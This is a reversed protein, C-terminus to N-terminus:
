KTFNSKSVKFVFYKNLFKQMPHIIITDIIVAIIFTILFCLCFRLIYREGWSQILKTKSYLVRLVAYHLIYITFSYKAVFSILKNLLDHKIVIAKIIIYMGLSFMIYMPAVGWIEVSHNPFFYKQIVTGLGCLAAICCLIKKQNKIMRFEYYGLFFCITWSSLLWGSYQFNVGLDQVLYIDLINWVLGVILLINIENDSLAQLMKALFPASVIMGILPYMFWLHTSNNTDFLRIMYGKFISLPEEWNIEAEYLYLILSLIIYPLIISVFKKKYYIIYDRKDKLIVNLNFRGSLMFFMNNCTLLISKYIVNVIQNDGYEDLPIHVAIVFLMALVRVYDYSVERKM